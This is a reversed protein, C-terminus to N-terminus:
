HKLEKHHRLSEVEVDAKPWCYKELTTNELWKLIMRLKYLRSGVASQTPVGEHVIAQEMRHAHYERM